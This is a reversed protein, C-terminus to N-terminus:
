LFMTVLGLALKRIGVEEAVYFGVLDESMGNKLIIRGERKVSLRGTVTARAASSWRFSVLSGRKSAM